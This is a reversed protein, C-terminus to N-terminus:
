CKRSSREVWIIKSVQRIFERRYELTQNECKVEWSIDNKTSSLFGLIKPSLFEFPLKLFWFVDWKRLVDFQM